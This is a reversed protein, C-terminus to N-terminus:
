ARFPHVESRLEDGPAIGASSAPDWSAPFRGRIPIGASRHCQGPATSSPVPMARARIGDAIRTGGPAQAEGPGCSVEGVAREHGFPIQGTLMLAATGSLSLSSNVTIAPLIVVVAGPHRRSLVLATSHAM